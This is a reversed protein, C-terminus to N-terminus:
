SKFWARLRPAKATLNIQRALDATFIFSGKLVCILVLSKGEYDKTIEAALEKVRAAITEASLMPVIRENPALM